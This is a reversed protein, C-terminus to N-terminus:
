KTITKTILMIKFRDLRLHRTRQISRNRLETYSLDEMSDFLICWIYWKPASM